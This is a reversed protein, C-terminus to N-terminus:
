ARDTAQAGPEGGVPCVVEVGRFEIRGNVNRRTRRSWSTAISGQKGERTMKRHSHSKAQAGSAAGVPFVESTTLSCTQKVGKMKPTLSFYLSRDAKYEASHLRRVPGHRSLPALRKGSAIRSVFKDAIKRKPAITRVNESFIACQPYKPLIGTQRRAVYKQATWIMSLTSSVESRSKQLRGRVSSKDINGRAIMWVVPPPRCSYASSPLYNLLINPVGSSNVRERAFEQFGRTPSRCHVLGASRCAIYTITFVPIQLHNVRIQPPPRMKRSNARVLLRMCLCHCCHSVRIMRTNAHFNLGFKASLHASKTGLLDLAASTKTHTTASCIESTGRRLYSTEDADHSSGSPGAPPRSFCPIKRSHPNM